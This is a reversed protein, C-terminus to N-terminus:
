RYKPAREGATGPHDTRVVSSRRCAALRDVAPGPNFQGWTVGHKRSIIGHKEMADSAIDQM